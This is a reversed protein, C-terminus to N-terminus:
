FMERGWFLFGTSMLLGEENEWVRCPSAAQARTKGWTTLGTFCPYCLIPSSSPDVSDRIGFISMEATLACFGWSPILSPPLLVGM